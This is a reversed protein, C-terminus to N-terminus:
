QSHSSNLRTSKRDSRSRSAVPLARVDGRLLVPRVPKPIRALRRKARVLMPESRDIGLLLRSSEADTKVWSRAIPALLRGTGCGLELVPGGTGALVDVWFAVDRKGLTRANEWDYFPAYTDWGHWGETKRGTM